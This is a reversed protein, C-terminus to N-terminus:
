SESAVHPSRDMAAGKEGEGKGGEVRMILNKKQKMM